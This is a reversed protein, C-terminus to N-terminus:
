VVCTSMFGMLSLYGIFRDRHYENSYTLIMDSYGIDDAMHHLCLAKNFEERDKFSIPYTKFLDPPNQM